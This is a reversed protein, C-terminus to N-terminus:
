RYYLLFLPLFCYILIMNKVQMASLFVGKQVNQQPCINASPPLIMQLFSKTRIM